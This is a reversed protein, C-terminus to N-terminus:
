TSPSKAAIQETQGPRWKDNDVTFFTLCRKSRLRPWVMAWDALRVSDANDGNGRYIGDMHM